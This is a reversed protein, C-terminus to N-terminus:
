KGFLADELEHTETLRRVQEDTLAAKILHLEDLDARLSGNGNLFGGIVVPSGDRDPGHTDIPVDNSGTLTEREGDVYLAIAGSGAEGGEHVVAIHHWRGDRLDTSGIVFGGAVECRLAGVTGNEALKNWAIQWKSGKVNLGGWAVFAYADEPKADAPVRVWAAVTRPADGTIGPLNTNIQQDSGDLRIAGGVFGEVMQPMRAPPWATVDPEDGTAGYEAPRIRASLKEDFDFKVYRPMALVNYSFRDINPSREGTIRGAVVAAARGAGYMTVSGGAHLNVAGDFVLVETTDDQADVGFRTGLDVVGVGPANVTYGIARPPVTAYVRGSMLQAGMSSDLTVDAPGLVTLDVGSSLTIRVMGRDIALRGAHAAGGDEIPDTRWVVDRGETVVGVVVTPGPEVPGSAIAVFYIAAATALLAVAAAISGIFGIRGAISREAPVADPEVIETVEAFVRPERALGFEWALAGDFRSYDLYAQQLEADDRLLADLEAVGAEDIVGDNAADVLDLMRDLKPQPAGTNM